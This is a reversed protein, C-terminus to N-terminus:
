VNVKLRAGDLLRECVEDFEIGIHAAAKPVLSLETMGPITNVELFYAEEDNPVIYDVRVTGECEIANCIIESWRKLREAIGEGIRAPVIYETMGKTYKSKYDYFGSKPAIELTPLAEGNLLGVTVERGKIYKEVIVKSDSELATRMGLLLEDKRHVITMNITSGERAPKVIVPFEMDFDAVFQEVSQQESEFLMEPPCPLGLERAVRKCIVKDMGVSSALVGGGTYPIRIMELLGQICGDEGFKGHLAIVAVDPKMDRLQAVLEAGGGVDVERVDYGLRALAASIAGGTRLSIEREKSIGGMLVAVKKGKWIGSM